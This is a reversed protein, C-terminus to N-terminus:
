KAEARIAGGELAIVEAVAQRVAPTRLVDVHGARPVVTLRIDVRRAKLARAYEQTPPVLVVTDNSGIVIRVHTRQPVGGALDLPTLSHNPLGTPAAHPHNQTWRVMFGKPDCSCAILVAADADESPRGLLDDTIGAGGSHGLVIVARAHFRTKLDQIVAHVDDVVEATYNGGVAYGKLGASKDGDADSYGPRLLAAAVVNDAVHALQQALEYHEAGPDLDGHIWLVLVPHDNLQASPYARVKLRGDPTNVWIAQGEDRWSLVRSPPQARAPSAETNASVGLALAAALGALLM